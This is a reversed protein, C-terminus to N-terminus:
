LSALWTRWRAKLTNTAYFRYTGGKGSILVNGFPTPEGTWMLAASGFMQNMGYTRGIYAYVSAAVANWDKRTTATDSNLQSGTPLQGHRYKAPLARIGATLVAFDYRGPTPNKNAQYLGQVADAIGRLTWAPVTPPKFGSTLGEDDAALIDLTFLQVLQATSRGPTVVV